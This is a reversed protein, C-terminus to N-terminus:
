RYRGMMAGSQELPPSYNNAAFQKQYVIVSQSNNPALNVLVDAIPASLPDANPLRVAIIHQGDRLTFYVSATEAPLALAVRQGDIYVDVPGFGVLANVVRVEAVNVEEQALSAMGVLLVAIIGFVAFLRLM